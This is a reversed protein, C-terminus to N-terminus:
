VRSSSERSIPLQHENLYGDPPLARVQRLVDEHVPTSAACTRAPKPPENAGEDAGRQRDRSGDTYARDDLAELLDRINNLSMGVLSQERWSAVHGPFADTQQGITEVSPFTRRPEVL